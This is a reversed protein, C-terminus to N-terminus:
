AVLYGIIASLIFIVALLGSVVLEHYRRGVVTSRTMDNDGM